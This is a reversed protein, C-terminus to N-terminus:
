REALYVGGLIATGGFLIAITVPENLVLAATAVALLPELNQIAALSSATSRKLASSYLWFAGATGLVGIYGLSAWGPLSLRVLEQWSQGAVFMPLMFIMGALMIGSTALTAPQDQVVFRNLITYVAWMVASALVWLNGPEIQNGHLLGTFNGGTSIVISGLTALLVGVIKWGRLPEHLFLAAFIVIFAPATSALFAAVGAEATVQGKVQLLQQVTMGAAGVIAARFLGLPYIHRLEGRFAALIGLLLAAVGFRLTILTVPSIERLATKIYIFSIAWLGNAAATEMLAIKHSNGATLVNVGQM